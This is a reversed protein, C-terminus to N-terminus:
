AMCYSLNNGNNQLFKRDGDEPCFLLYQKETGLTTGQKHVM